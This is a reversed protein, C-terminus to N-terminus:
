ETEVLAEIIEVIKVAIQGQETEILEGRAILRGDIYLSVPDEVRSSLAIVSDTQLQLIEQVTMRKQGLSVTVTVPVNFITRRPNALAATDPRETSDYDAKKPEM